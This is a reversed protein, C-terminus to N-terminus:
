VIVRTFTLCPSVIDKCHMDAGEAFLALALETKCYIDIAKKNKCLRTMNAAPVQLSNQLNYFMKGARKKCIGLLRTM